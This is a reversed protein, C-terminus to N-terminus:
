ELVSRFKRAFRRCVEPTLEPASNVELVYYNNGQRIIDVGGFDLGLAAIASRAVPRLGTRIEDAGLLRFGYGGGTTKIDPNSRAGTPVKIQVGMTEDFCVNVRYEQDARVFKTYLPARPLVQNRDIITLGAGDRGEVETRVCVRHGQTLWARAINYDTTWEVTPVRARQLAFFTAIKNVCASVSAEKNIVRSRRVEYPLEGSGWNIVTKDLGGRFRSNRHAIRPVDLAEALLAASKSGTKYPYIFM